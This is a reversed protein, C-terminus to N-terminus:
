IERNSDTASFHFTTLAGTVKRNAEEPFLSYIDYTRVRAEVHGISKKNYFAALDGNLTTSTDGHVLVIDANCEKIVKDVGSLIKNFVDVVTQGHPMINLNYQTEVDFIDLINDLMERHQATEYVISEIM